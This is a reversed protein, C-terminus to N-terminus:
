QRNRVLSDYKNKFMNLSAANVVEGPLGNWINFVRNTFFNQRVTTRFKEKRLKFVHGRLPLENLVFLHSMDVTFLDHLCRFVTILDGRLRRDSFSTLGGLQLRQEYSPRSPDYGYPLRTTRRQVSELLNVDRVLEPNWVPGAYELIPRVYTIYLQVWTKLSCDSFARNLLFITKNAKNVVHLVHSSWSLDCSVIVGLDSQSEVSKLVVGDLSYLHRPNNAGLHLVVCKAVNLPLLWQECWNSITALDRRIAARAVTPDAYLKLDDAFFASGCSLLDPLEAVYILFLVPGLVSGQPVGSLVPKSQSLCGGVRVRFERDSLFSQIWTLLKGRIGHHELKSLLRQIPVRDFAKAFDLYIADIPKKNDLSKTWSNICQLLNTIVSRGPVFGHQEQPIIEHQLLFPLLTELIIKEPIKAIIPVISIPRYNSPDLKDGKKFIPTVTALKWARPLVSNAFSFQILLYVPYALAFSCTKLFIADIGDSGPSTSPDLGRLFTEVIEPSLELSELSHINRGGHVSPIPTAPETTFVSSFTGSFRDAALNYDGCVDGNIDRVLPTSIKNSLHSRVYKFLKKKNSSSAIGDLYVTKAKRLLYSINNSYRRHMEFDEARGSRRYRQWLRKKTRIQQLLHDSIWPKLPSYSKRFFRSNVALTNLTTSTFIDWKVDINGDALLENWNHSLLSEGVASYDISRILRHASRSPTATVYQLAATMVVHDSKGLPASYEISHIINTDNVLILDLTSPLQGDRFRTHETVLQTLNAEVLTQAFLASFSNGSPVNILPWKLDPLNFDGAIILNRSESLRPLEALLIEDALSPHPRYMCGITISFSESQIDLFINDIGPLSIVFEKITFQDLLQTKLYICVGDYGRNSPNDGRYMNYGPIAYLSDPIDVKLWTEAILIFTPNTVQVLSLLDNYKANLSALNTYM